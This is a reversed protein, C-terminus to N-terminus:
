DMCGNSYANWLGGIVGACAGLGDSTAAGLLIPVIVDGACKLDHNPRQDVQILGVIVIKVFALNRLLHERETESLLVTENVFSEYANITQIIISINEQSSILSHIDSYSTKAILFENSTWFNETFGSSTYNLDSIDSLTSTAIYTSIQQSYENYQNESISLAALLDPLIAAEFEERTMANQISNGKITSKPLIQNGDLRVLSALKGMRPVYKNTEVIQELPVEVFKMDRIKSLENQIQDQKSSQNTSVLNRINEKQCSLVFFAFSCVSILFHKKM